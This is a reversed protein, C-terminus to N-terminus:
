AEGEEFVLHVRVAFLSLHFYRINYFGLPNKKKSLALVIVTYVLLLESIILVSYPHMQNPCPRLMEACLEHTIILSKSGFHKAGVFINANM